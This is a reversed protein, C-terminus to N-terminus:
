TYTGREICPTLLIGLPKKFAFCVKANAKLGHKKALKQLDKRKLSTLEEM